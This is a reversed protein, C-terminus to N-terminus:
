VRLIDVIHKQMDQVIMSVKRDRCDLCINGRKLAWVAFLGNDDDDVVQVIYGADKLVKAAMSMDKYTLKKKSSIYFTEIGSIGSGLVKLIETNDTQRLMGAYTFYVEVAAEYFKVAIGYGDSHDIPYEVLKGSAQVGKNILDSLKSSFNKGEGSDEILKLVDADLTVSVAFKKGM